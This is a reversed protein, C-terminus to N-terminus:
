TNTTSTPFCKDSPPYQPLFSNKSPLPTKNELSRVSIPLHFFTLTHLTRTKLYSPAILSWRHSLPWGGKDTCDGWCEVTNQRCPQLALLLCNVDMSFFFPLPSFGWWSTVGKGLTWPRPGAKLCSHFMQAALSSFTKAINLSCMTGWMCVHLLLSCVLAQKNREM